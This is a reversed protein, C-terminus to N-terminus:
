IVISAMLTLRIAEFNELEENEFRPKVRCHQFVQLIHTKLWLWHLLLKGNTWIQTIKETTTNHFHPKVTPLM